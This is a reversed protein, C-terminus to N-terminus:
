EEVSRLLGAMSECAAILRKITGPHEEVLLKWVEEPVSGVQKREAELRGTMGVLYDRLSPTEEERKEKTEKAKAARDIGLDADVAKRIDRVSPAEGGALQTAAKLVRTVDQTRLKSYDKEAGPGETRGATPALRGLETLHSPGLNTKVDPSIKEPIRKSVEAARILSAAQAFSKGVLGGARDKLYENWSSCDEAWLENDRIECLYRGIELGNTQITEAAKRIENELTRLRQKRSVAVETV